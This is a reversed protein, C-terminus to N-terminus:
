EEEGLEFSALISGMAGQCIAEYNDDDAKKLTEIKEDAM